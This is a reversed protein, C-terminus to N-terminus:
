KGYDLALWAYLFGLPEGIMTKVGESFRWWQHPDYDRDVLAIIGVQCSGGLARRFCLWSRRAHAGETLLNFSDLRLRHEQCYDRLAVAAGFTRNRHKVQSPVATVVNSSLGMRILTAAASEASTRYEILLSGREHPGGTTFLHEYSGRRFEAIAEEMAHDPLWGEVVLTKSPIPATVALFPHAGLVFAAIALLLMGALGAVLRRRPHRDTPQVETMEASSRIQSDM